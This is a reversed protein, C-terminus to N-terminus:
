RCFSKKKKLEAKVVNIYQEQFDDANTYITLLEENSKSSIQEEFSNHM